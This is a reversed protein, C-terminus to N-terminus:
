KFNRMFLATLGIVFDIETPKVADDHKVYKNQYKAYYDLLKEFMNIFEQSKGKDKQFKGIESLQNELSKQNNLIEKLFTELALRMDDLMNRLYIGQKYKDIAENFLKQSSPYEALFDQTEKITTQKQLLTTAVGKFYNELFGDVEMKMEQVSFVRKHYVTLTLSPNNESQSETTNVKSVSELETLKMKVDEIFSTNKLFVKVYETHYAKRIETEFNKAM